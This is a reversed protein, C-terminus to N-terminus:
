RGFTCCATGVLYFGFGEESCRRKTPDYNKSWESWPRRGGTEKERERRTHREQENGEKMLM